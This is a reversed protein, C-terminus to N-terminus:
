ATWPTEAAVQEGAVKGGIFCESNNGGLLYLHGFISGNEGAKYLGPISAGFPDLVRQDADHVLGGQTNTIIPHVQIVYYPATAIPLRSWGPRGYQDDSEGRADRNWDSLTREVNGVPAGIAQALEEITQAVKIYGREVERLNDRSWEYASAVDKMAPRGIPGNKRGEEDFVLYAPIRPYTQTDPDFRILDRIPTDQSAPPYENMFRQGTGDVVIWPMKQAAGRPGAVAHRIAVAVDPLRYGYSGHLHNMHWLAAGVKQGMLIGDGTNTLPSMSTMDASGVYHRILRENHEFGGTCLVVGRRAGIREVRGDREIECGVVRGDQVILERVTTQLQVTIQERQRVNEMLVHFLTAGARAGTVWDFGDFDDGRTVRASRLQEYGPFPYNGTRPEHVIERGVAAALQTLDAPIGVLGAAFADLVEDDTTGDCTARLYALTADHDTGFVCSGGSLISNGGPNTDKELLLVEAGADAAAVAARGGAYGYGAVVVDHVHDWPGTKTM